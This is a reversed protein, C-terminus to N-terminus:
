PKSPPADRGGRGLRKALSDRRRRAAELQRVDFFSTVFRGVVVIMLVAVFWEAQEPLTVVRRLGRGVLLGLGLGVVIMPVMAWGRWRDWWMLRASLRDHRAAAQEYEREIDGAATM